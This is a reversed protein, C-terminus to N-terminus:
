VFNNVQNRRYCFLQSLHTLTICGFVAKSINANSLTIVDNCDNMLSLKTTSGYNLCWYKMSAKVRVLRPKKVNFLKAFFPTAFFCGKDYDRFWNPGLWSVKCSHPAVYFREFFALIIVFTM